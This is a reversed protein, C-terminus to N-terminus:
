MKSQKKLVNIGNLGNRTLITDRSLCIIISRVRINGSVAQKDESSGMNMAKDRAEVLQNYVYEKRRTEPLSTPLVGTTITSLM